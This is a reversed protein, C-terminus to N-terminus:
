RWSLLAEGEAVQDGPAVLVTVEDPEAQLAVVPCLTYRGRARVCEPSWALLPQGAVVLEGEEVAVDFCATALDETDVGLHVLVSRDADLAVVVAHPYVSVMRGGCPAVVVVRVAEGPEGSGAPEDPLIALGPGIVADAFVPDPVDSLAVVIGSLTAVVQTTTHLQSKM